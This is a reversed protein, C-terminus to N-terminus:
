EQAGAPVLKQAHSLVRARGGELVVIDEIRVGGWGPIYIGPEITFVMGEELVDESTVGLYPTEHVELGVGHGLGHGFQEGYGAKAIVDRALWDGQIGTMGSEMGEIAARQAAFVVEYVERFKEDGPGLTTTRTLDSCYGEVIAGMDIVVMEGELLPERRPTAHPMAAWPGGAVITDFSVSSGGASRVAHEVAEAVAVETQGAGLSELVAEYAADCCAISRRLSAMEDASKHVRLKEVIPPAATLIPRDGAAIEGLATLLKSYEGFTMDAGSIGVPRRGLGLTGLSQACADMRKGRITQIEFGRPSCERGAQETYRSDVAVIARTETVVVYGASGTFGSVYRRNQSHRGFVDDVPSAIFL